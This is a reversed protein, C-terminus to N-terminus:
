RGRTSRSKLDEPILDLLEEPDKDPEAYGRNTQTSEDRELPAQASSDRHKRWNLRAVIRRGIRIADREDLTLYDALGSVTAHM